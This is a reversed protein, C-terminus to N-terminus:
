RSLKIESIRVAPNALVEQMLHTFSRVFTNMDDVSFRNLPFFVVGGIENGRERLVMGPETDGRRAFVPRKIQFPTSLIMAHPNEAVPMEDEPLWNFFCNRAFAPRPEQAELYSYDVHECAGCYEEKVRDTFDSFVDQKRMGIRLHLGGAFCGITNELKPSDRGGTIYQFVAESVGCWKLVVAAYIAFVVIVITTRNLRSWERLARTMDSHLKVPVTKWEGDTTDSYGKSAPFITRQCGELHDNWYAGHERLWADRANHQCAAYDCLQLQVLPLSVQLGRSIQEYGHLLDRFLINMSLGDSVVHESTVILLHEDHRLRILRFAFLPDVAVDIRILLFREILRDAEDVGSSSSLATLDDITLDFPPCSRAVKQMLVGNDSWVQTRLADQRRILSVISARLAETSLEGVLRIGGSVGRVVPRSNLEYLHWHAVQSFALPAYHFDPHSAPGGGTIKSDAEVDLHALIQNKSRQLVAVEETTLAGKPATYHLQGNAAWLRVGKNRVRGLVLIIEETSGARRCREATSNPSSM